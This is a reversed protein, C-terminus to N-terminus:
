REDTILSYGTKTTIGTTKDVNGYFVPEPHDSLWQNVAM